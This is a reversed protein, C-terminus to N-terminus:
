KPRYKYFRSTSSRLIPAVLHWIKLSFHML